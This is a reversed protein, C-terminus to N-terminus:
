QSLCCIEVRNSDVDHYRNLISYQNIGLDSGNVIARVFFYYHKGIEFDANSLTWRYIGSDYYSDRDSDDEKFERIKLYGQDGGVARYLIYGSDAGDETDQGRASTWQLMIGKQACIGNKCEESSSCDSYCLGPNNPPCFTLVPPCVTTTVSLSNSRRMGCASAGGSLAKIYYSYTTQPDGGLNLPAYFGCTSTTNDCNDASLTGVSEDISNGEGYVKHVEYDSAGEVMNWKLYGVKCSQESNLSVSTLNFSNLEEGCKVRYFDSFPKDYGSPISTCDVSQDTACNFSIWGIDDSWAWGRFECQDFYVRYDEWGTCDGINPDTACSMSIWGGGPSNELSIIRVWGNVNNGELQARHPHNGGGPLDATSGFDIWGVYGNWAYDLFNKDSDIKVGYNNWGEEECISINDESCLPDGPPCNKCSFSIWGVTDSYAWGEPQCYYSQALAFSTWFIGTIFIISILITIKINSALM